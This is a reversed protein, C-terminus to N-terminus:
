GLNSGALTFDVLANSNAVEEARIVVKANKAGKDKGKSAGSLTGEWTQDRAGVIQALACEAVGQVDQSSPPLSPMSPSPTDYLVLAIQQGPPYYVQRARPALYMDYPAAPAAAPTASFLCAPSASSCLTRPCPRLISFPRSCGAM